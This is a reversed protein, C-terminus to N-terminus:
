SVQQLKIWTVELLPCVTFACEQTISACKQTISACKQTISAGKQAISACKQVIPYSYQTLVSTLYDSQLVVFISM